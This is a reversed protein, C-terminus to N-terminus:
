GTATGVIGGSSHRPSQKRLVEDLEAPNVPKTMYGDMGASICREQDGSMAHATLAIIPVHLNRGLEWRRIEATAEFGDMEPMQVDMFILDFQNVIAAEYARKGNVALTVIHGRKALMRQMVLQNVQNDEAVLVNLAASHAFATTARPVAVANVNVSRQLTERLESTRLPKVLYHEIGLAQCYAAGERHENTRLVVIVKTL